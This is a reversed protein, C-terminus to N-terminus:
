RRGRRKGYGCMQMYSDIVNSISNTRRLTILLPV